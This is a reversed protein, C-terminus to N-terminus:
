PPVPRILNAGQLEREPATKGVEGGSRLFCAVAKIAPILLM